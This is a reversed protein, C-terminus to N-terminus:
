LDAQAGGGSAAAGEGESASSESEEEEVVNMSEGAESTCAWGSASSRCSWTGEKSKVVARGDDSVGIVITGDPVKVALFAYHAETVLALELPLTKTGQTATGKAALLLSVYGGASAESAESAESADAEVLGGSPAPEAGAADGTPASPAKPSSAENAIGLLAKTSALLVAKGDFGFGDEFVCADFTVKVLQGDPSSEGAYSMSGGNPCACAQGQGCAASTTARDLLRISQTGSTGSGSPSPASVKSANAKQGRYGGFAKGATQASFSGTPSRLASLASGTDVDEKATPASCAISTSALAVLAALALTTKVHHEGPEPIPADARPPLSAGHPAVSLVKAVRTGGSKVDRHRLV